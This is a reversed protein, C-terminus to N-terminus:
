QPHEETPDIGYALLASEAISRPTLYLMAWPWRRDARRHLREFFQRDDFLPNPISEATGSVGATSRTWDDRMKEVIKWAAAIDQCYRPLPHWVGQGMDAERDFWHLSGDVFGTLKLGMLKEGILRDIKLDDVDSLWTM